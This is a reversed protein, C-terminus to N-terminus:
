RVTKRLSCLHCRRSTGQRPFHRGVLRTPPDNYPSISSSPDFKFLSTVVQLRFSPFLTAEENRIKYLAHANSLRLDIHHFFLKLYCKMTKRVTETISLQRDVNDIDGMNQNYDHVCRPKVIDENTLYSKKGTACFELEHMRTLMGVSRKDKWRMAM